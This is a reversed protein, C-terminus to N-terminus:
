NGEIKSVAEYLKEAANRYTYKRLVGDVDEKKIPKEALDPLSCNTDCADIYAAANGYIEPLSANKSVIIKAGASLAELPPIGFGEYYSPFVFAECRKMLAKVESDSVYGLLVVNRLKRIDGLETSKMGGIAKGSIAFTQEPNGAAYELIWRLNKRKQLSGLTFFFRNEALQPFRSFIGNDEAVSNFHEWGNPVVIIREADTNYAKQIQKKSFESVTLILRANKAINRYHLCSYARILRDKFTVFDGPFDHAYIDHIFCIGSKKGLPATNSFNLPVANRKKAERAIEFMDWKPFSKLPKESLITHINRFEPVTKANNPVLISFEIGSANKEALIMDLQRCTEFAFREIGTLNRCLFNGNILIKAAM